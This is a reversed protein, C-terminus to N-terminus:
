SEIRERGLDFSYSTTRLLYLCFFSILVYTIAVFALDLDSFAVSIVGAGTSFLSIFTSFIAMKHSLPLHASSELVLRQSLANILGVSFSILGMNIIQALLPAGGFSLLFLLLSTVFLVKFVTTIYMKLELRECFFPVMFSAMIYFSFVLVQSYAYYFPSQKHYNLIIFPSQIVWLFLICFCSTALLSKLLFDKDKLVTKYFSLDENFNIPKYSATEPTFFLLGIFSGMAMFLLTYFLSNWHGYVSLLLAGLVPGMAPAILTVANMMSTVAIVTRGTFLSHVTTYGAVFVSAVATGQIFRGICFIWFNQALICIMTAIIFLAVSALLVRRRGFAYTLPGLVLQLSASGLSWLIFSLKVLDESLAFTQMVEPIAVLYMDLSFYVTIEFCLLFFTFLFNRM